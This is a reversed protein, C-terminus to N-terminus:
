STKQKLKKLHAKPDFDSFFGSREGRALAKNIAKNKVEEAEMM